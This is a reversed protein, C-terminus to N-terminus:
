IITIRAKYKVAPALDGRIDLNSGTTNLTVPPTGVQDTKVGAICKGIYHDGNATMEVTASIAKSHQWYGNGEVNITKSGASAPGDTDALEIM